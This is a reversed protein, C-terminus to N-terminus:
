AGLLVYRDAAGLLLTHRGAADCELARVPWPAPERAFADGGRLEIAVLEDDTAVFVAGRTDAVALARARPLEITRVLRGGLEYLRAHNGEADRLVAVICRGEFVDALGLCTSDGVAAFRASRGAADITQLWGDHVFAVRGDALLAIPASVGAPLALSSAEVRSATGARVLCTTDGRWLAAARRVSRSAVFCGRGDLVPAPEGLARCGAPEFRHLMGAAAVWLEGGVFAVDDIAPIRLAKGGGGAVVSSVTLGDEDRIAVWRGSPSLTATRGSPTMATVDVEEPKPAGLPRGVDEVLAGTLRRQFVAAARLSAETVRDGRTAAALSARIVASKIQAGSLDYDAALREIDVDDTPLPPALLKAWMVAREDADPRRFDVRYPIRRTFAEDLSGA